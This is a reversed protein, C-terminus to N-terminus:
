LLGQREWRINKKVKKIPVGAFISNPDNEFNKNVLSGTGIISGSPIYTNKLITCNMGCWVHDGIDINGLRNEGGEEYFIKHGDNNFIICGSSFMCDSGISIHTNRGSAVIRLTNSVSFDDGITLTSGNLIRLLVRDYKHSTRGLECINDDNLLVIKSESYKSPKGIILRNNNGRILVEMGDCYRHFNFFNLNRYIGNEELLIVNNSGINHLRTRRFPQLGRPDIPAIKECLNSIFADIRKRVTNM